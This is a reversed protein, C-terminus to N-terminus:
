VYVVFMLEGRVRLHNEGVVSGYENDGTCYYWGADSYQLDNIELGGSLTYTFSIGDSGVSFNRDRLRENINLFQIRSDEFPTANEEGEQDGKTWSVKSPPFSNFFCNIGHYPDETGKVTIKSRMVSGSPTAISIPALLNM